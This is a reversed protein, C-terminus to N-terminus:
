CGRGMEGYLRSAYRVCRYFGGKASLLVALDKISM